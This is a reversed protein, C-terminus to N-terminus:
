RRKWITYKGELALPTFPKGGGEFFYPFFEVFQLRATHVFAGLGNIALNFLHGCILILGMLPFGLFPIQKAIGAITNVVMGIVGTALGLAMLRSYSLVNGVFDKFKWLIGGPIILFGLLPNRQRFVSTFSLLFGCFMLKLGLLGIPSGRGMFYLILGPIMVLWSFNEGIGELIKGKRLKDFFEIGIGVLIHAIGLSLALTFFFMLNELPVFKILGEKKLFSPLYEMPIAFWGGTIAGWFIASLGGFLLVGIIEKGVSLKKLLFLSLIVMIIGYGADTLCLGFFAAFFPALFPSPDVEGYRPLSYLRTIAEFPKFFIPNKLSVPPEEGEELPLSTLYFSPFKTKILNELKKLEERKVWGILLFTSKSELTEEHAYEKNLLFTFYDYIIKLSREKQLLKEIKEMIKREEKEEEKLQKELDNLEEQPIRDGEPPSFEEVPLNKLLEQLKEEESFHYILLYYLVSGEKGILELCTLPLASIGEKIGGDDKEKWKLFLFRTSFTPKLASFPIELTLFPLLEKKRRELEEKRRVIEEREKRLKFIEECVEKWAFTEVVRKGEEEDIIIKEPIIGAFMGKEKFSSIDELARDIIHLNEEIEGRRSSSLQFYKLYEKKDREERLDVLDIEEERQIWQLFEEKEERLGLIGIKELPIVAM